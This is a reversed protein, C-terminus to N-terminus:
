LYACYISQAGIPNMLMDETEMILNQIFCFEVLIASCVSCIVNTIEAYRIFLYGYKGNEM